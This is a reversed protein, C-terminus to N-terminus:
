LGSKKFPQADTYYLFKGSAKCIINDEPGKIEAKCTVLHRGPQLSHAKVNLKDDARAFEKMRITVESTIAKINNAHILHMMAEDILSFLIGGHVIGDFGCYDNGPIFEASVYEGHITFPINLGRPNDAGCVFCKEAQIKSASM